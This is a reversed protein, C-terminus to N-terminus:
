LISRLESPLIPNEMREPHWMLGFIYKTKHRFGEISGDSAMAIPYLDPGLKKISMNHYSNVEYETDEM